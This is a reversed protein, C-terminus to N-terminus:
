HVALTGARAVVRSQFSASGRHANSGAQSRIPFSGSLRPSKTATAWRNNVPPPGAWFGHRRNAVATRRPFLLQFADRTWGRSAAIAFRRCPCGPQGRTVARVAEVRNQVGLMTYIFHLHANVTSISVQLRDAIEKNEPGEVLWHLIENERESLKLHPRFAGAPAAAVAALPHGAVTPCGPNRGAMVDAIACAFQPRDRPMTLYGDAGARIAALIHDLDRKGALV